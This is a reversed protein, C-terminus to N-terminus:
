LASSPPGRGAVVATVMDQALASASKVRGDAGAMGAMGAQAHERAQKQEKVAALLGDVKAVIHPENLEAIDYQEKQSGTEIWIDPIYMTRFKLSGSDLLGEETLFHGVHAGFGGKSGEEITLLVDSELALQRVLAAETGIEDGPRLRGSVIEAEIAKLSEAPLDPLFKEVLRKRLEKKFAAGMGLQM